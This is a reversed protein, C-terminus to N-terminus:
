VRKTFILERIEDLKEYLRDFDKDLEVRWAELSEVRASLKGSHYAVGLIVLAGGGVVIWNVVTLM